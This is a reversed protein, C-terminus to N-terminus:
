CWRGPLEVGGGAEWSLRRCCVQLTVAGGETGAANNVFDCNVFDIQLRHHMIPHRSSFTVFVYRLYWGRTVWCARLATVAWSRMCPRARNGNLPTWGCCAASPAARSGCRVQMAGSNLLAGGMDSAQGNAFRINEFRMFVSPMFNANNAYLIRGAAATRLLCPLAPCPGLHNRSISVRSSIM